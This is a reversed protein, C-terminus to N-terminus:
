TGRLRMVWLGSSAPGHLYGSEAHAHYEQQEPDEAEDRADGGLVVLQRETPWWESAASSPNNLTDTRCLM